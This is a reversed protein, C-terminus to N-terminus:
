WSSQLYSDTEITSYLERKTNHKSDPHVCHPEIYVGVLDSIYIMYPLPVCSCRLVYRTVEASSYTESNFYINEDLNINQKTNM